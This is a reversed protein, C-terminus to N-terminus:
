ASVLCNGSGKSLACLAQERTDWSDHFWAPVGYQYDNRDPVVPHILRYRRIPYLGHGHAFPSDFRIPYGGDGYVGASDSYPLKARRKTYAM